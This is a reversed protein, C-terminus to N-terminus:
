LRARARWTRRRAITSSSRESSRLRRSGPSPMSRRTKSRGAPPPSCASRGPASGCRCSACRRRAPARCSAPPPTLPHAGAEFVAWGAGEPVCIAAYDLDFRRAVFGALSANAAQSETILLIDRSLDFLRGLEDRRAVAERTRARAVASLHSAVLSVTLLAFLAMWNQPDAITLTGVPPLFFFNFALVAAFSTMVAVWLPSTAAVFLVVILFGMAVTATM